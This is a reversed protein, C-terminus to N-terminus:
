YRTRFSLVNLRLKENDPIYCDARAPEKNICAHRNGKSRRQHASSVDVPYIWLCKIREVENGLDKIM